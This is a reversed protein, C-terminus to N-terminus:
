TSAPGRNRYPGVIALFQELLGRNAAAVYPGGQSNLPQGDLGSVVGGAEEILIAGAAVDWAKTTLAWSIDFRGAALYAMNLAASGTRRISLCHVASQIMWHVDTSDPLVRAPLGISILAESLREVTSVRITEGNLRAGYGAIATFRERLMPDYIVGVIPRGECELALSVAFFPVGHIYNTTGDLPDLIWRYSSDLSHGATGEEGLFDHNPFERHIIEVVARQAGTDAETVFDAHGKLRAEVRGLKSLLVEAAADVARNAVELFNELEKRGHQSPTM